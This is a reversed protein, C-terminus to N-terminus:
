HGSVKYGSGIHQQVMSDFTAFQSPGFADTITSVAALILATRQAELQVLEAPVPPVAVGESLGYKGRAAQIIAAAQRDIVQIQQACPLAISNLQDAQTSTLQLAQTLYNLVFANPKSQAALQAAIGQYAAIERFLIRYRVDRRMPQPTLTTGSPQQAPLSPCFPLSFVFLLIGSRM